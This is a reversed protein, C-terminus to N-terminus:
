RNLYAGQFRPVQHLKRINNARDPKNRLSELRRVRANECEWNGQHRKPSGVGSALGRAQSRQVAAARALDTRSRCPDAYEALVALIQGARSQRRQRAPGRRSAARRTGEAGAGRDPFRLADNADNDAEAALPPLERGLEILYRYRDDWDDLLSFNDIIEDIDAM